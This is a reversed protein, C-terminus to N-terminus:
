FTFTEKRSVRIRESLVVQPWESGMRRGLLRSVTLLQAKGAGSAERLGALDDARVGEALPTTRALSHRLPVQPARQRECLVAARRREHAHLADPLRRRPLPLHRTRQRKRFPGPLQPLRGHGCPLLRRLAAEPGGDLRTGSFPVIYQSVTYKATNRQTEKM